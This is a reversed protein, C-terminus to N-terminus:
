IITTVFCQGAPVLNMYGVEKIKSNTVRYESFLRLPLHRRDVSVTVTREMLVVYDELLVSFSAPGDPNPYLNM